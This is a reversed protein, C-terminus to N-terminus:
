DGLIGAEDVTGFNLGGEEEAPALSRLYVVMGKQQEPTAIDSWTHFAQWFNYPLLNPNYSGGDPVIGQTFIAVLDQDSFGATQEPTHEVGQFFGGTPNAGHCQTCAPGADPCGSDPPGPLNIHIGADALVPILKGDICGAVLPVGNNYRANGVQWDAEVASTISLTTSTCLSGVQATITVTPTASKVTMVTGGTSPDPTFSVASPDSASWMATGSGGTVIAPVQFQQNTSDTVFASYMPAFHIQLSTSATCAGGDGSSGGSDVNTAGSDNGATTGSSSSSCAVVAIAGVVAAASLSTLMGMGIKLQRM